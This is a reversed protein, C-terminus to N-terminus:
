IYEEQNLSHKKPYHDQLYGAMWVEENALKSMFRDRCCYDSSSDHLWVLLRPKIAYAEFSIRWSLSSAIYSITVQALSKYQYTSDQAM